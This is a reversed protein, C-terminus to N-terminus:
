NFNLSVDVVPTSANTTSSIKKARFYRYANIDESVQGGTISTLSAITAYSVDDNCAQLDVQLASYTGGSVVVEMTVRRAPQAPRVLGWADGVANSNSAAISVNPRGPDASQTPNSM